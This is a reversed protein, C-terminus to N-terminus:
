WAMPKKKEALAVRLEGRKKEGTRLSRFDLFTKRSLNTSPVSSGITLTRLRDPGPKWGMAQMQGDVQMGKGCMKSGRVAAPRSQYQWLGPVCARCQLFVSQCGMSGRAPSKGLGAM